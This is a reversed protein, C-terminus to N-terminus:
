RKIWRKLLGCLEPIRRTYYLKRAERTTQGDVAELIDMFVKEKLWYGFHYKERLSCADTLTAYGRLVRIDRVSGKHEKELHVPATCEPLRESKGLGLYLATDYLMRADVWQRACLGEYITKLKRYAEYPATGAWDEIPNGDWTSVKWGTAPADVKLDFLPQVDPQPMQDDAFELLNVTREVKWTAEERGYEATGYEIRDIFGNGTTDHYRVVDHLLGEPPEPGEPTEKRDVAGKYHAYYDVTWEAKDAGHLHIRGDFAGIYLRGKGKFTSDIEVRDGIRDAYAHWDREYRSFMEEWRNDDNDEDWIIWASTWKAYDTAIKYGDVFPLHIRRTVDTLKRCETSLLERGSDPIGLIKMDDAYPRLPLGPEGYACLTLQFDLSHWRDQCLEGNLEFAFEAEHAGGTQGFNEAISDQWVIGDKFRGVDAIRMVMESFGDHDFDYWAIPTEWALSLDDYAIRTNVFFGSGHVNQVYRSHGTYTQEEGYTFTSWDLNKFDREGNVNVVVEVVGSANFVIMEPMGDGNIDMSRYYFDAAGIKGDGDNDVLLTYTGWGARIPNWVVPPNRGVNFAGNFYDSWDEPEKDRPWPLKGTDSLFVVTKGNWTTVLADPIGDGNLDNFGWSLRRAPSGCELNCHQDM